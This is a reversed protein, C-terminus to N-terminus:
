ETDVTAQVGHRRKALSEQCIPACKRAGDWPLTCSLHIWSDEFKQFKKKYQNESKFTLKTLYLFRLRIENERLVKFANVDKSADPAAQSFDLPMQHREKTIHGKRDERLKDGNYEPKVM